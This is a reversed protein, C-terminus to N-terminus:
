GKWYFDTDEEFWDCPERHDALKGCDPCKGGDLMFPNWRGHADCVRIIRVHGWLRKAPQNCFITPIYEGIECLGCVTDAHDDCHVRGDAEFVTGPKGCKDYREPDLFCCAFLDNLERDIWDAMEAEELNRDSAERGQRVRPEVAESDRLNRPDHREAAM